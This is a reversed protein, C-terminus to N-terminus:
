KAELTDVSSQKCITPEKCGLKPFLHFEVYGEQLACAFALFPRMSQDTGLVTWPLLPLDSHGGQARHKPLGQPALCVPATVGRQWQSQMQGSPMGGGFEAHRAAQWVGGGFGGGAEKHGPAPGWVRSLDDTQIVQLLTRYAVKKTGCKGRTKQIAAFYLCVQFLSGIKFCSIEDIKKRPSPFFLPSLM